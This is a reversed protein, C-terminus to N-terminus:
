REGEGVRFKGPRCRKRQAPSGYPKFSSRLQTPISGISNLVSVARDRQRRQFRRLGTPPRSFPSPFRAVFEANTIRSKRSQM